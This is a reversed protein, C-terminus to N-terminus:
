GITSGLKTQVGKLREKAIELYKQSIDIGIPRRSFLVGALVASGIGVFPDLIVGNPPCTAEIPIKLLEIPFVAYHVDKRCEDEPVINWIDAPIHGNAKSTLIYFGKKELEKARGSIEGNDSHLPRQNGRITMRFDVVEGDRIKQIVNELAVLAMKRENESLYESRLIQERYKKGSVGTASTTKDGEIKPLKTPKILIKNYDYYYKKGKVLHFVHEHNSRLRNKASQTGKMKNWIVDNRLLWGNKEMALAVRWPMGMLNQNYFKDGINLWVSGTPKLIRKIKNFVDALNSVYDEPNDESGIENNQHEPEVHYIRMKWYPPSTIVCDICEPPFLHLLERCDGKLLLFKRENNLVQQIM